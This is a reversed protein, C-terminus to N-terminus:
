EENLLICTYNGISALKQSFNLICYVRWWLGLELGADLITLKDYTILQSVSSNVLVNIGAPQGSATAKPLGVPTGLPPTWVGGM